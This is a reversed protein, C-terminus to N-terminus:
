DPYECDTCYKNGIKEYCNNDKLKCNDHAVAVAKSCNCSMQGFYQEEPFLKEYGPNEMRKYLDYDEKYIIKYKDKNKISYQIAKMEEIDKKIKDRNKIYIGDGYHKGCMDRKAMDAARNESIQRASGVYYLMATATLEKVHGGTLGTEHYFCHSYNEIKSLDRSCITELHYDRIEINICYEDFEKNASYLYPKEAVHNANDIFREYEDYQLANYVGNCILGLIVISVFCGLPSNKKKSDTVQETNGEPKPKESNSEELKSNCYKCKLASPTLEKGCNPCIKKEESMCMVGDLFSM